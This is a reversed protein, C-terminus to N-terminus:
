FLTNPSQVELQHYHSNFQISANPIELLVTHMSNKKLVSIM